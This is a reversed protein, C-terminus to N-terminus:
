KQSTKRPETIKMTKLFKITNLFDSVGSSVVLVGAYEAQLRSDIHWRLYAALPKCLLWGIFRGRLIGIAVIRSVPVATKTFTELWQNVDDGFDSAVKMKLYMKSIRLMNGIVPRRLVINITKIGFWRLFFPAPIPVPVGKDLITDVLNIETEKM